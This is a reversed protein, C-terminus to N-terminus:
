TLTFLKFKVITPPSPSSGGVNETYALREVLQALWGKRSCIDAKTQLQLDSLGDDWCDGTAKTIQWVPWDDRRDRPNRAMAQPPKTGVAWSTSM